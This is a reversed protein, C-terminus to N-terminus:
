RALGGLYVTELHAFLSYDGEITLVTEWPDIRDGEHLAHVELEDWGPTWAGGPACRGACLKLIAIAEDIGGLISEKRQFAQMLVRPRMGREELLTKAHNFYADSYYGSRIKDLPLRFVEPALRERQAISVRLVTDWDHAPGRAAARPEAFPGDKCSTGPCWTHAERQRTGPGAMVTM